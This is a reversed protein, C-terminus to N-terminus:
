NGGVGAILYLIALRVPGFLPELFRGLIYLGYSNLALHILGIHVFCATVLRWWQGRIIEARSVAGEDHIIENYIDQMARADAGGFLYLNLPFKRQQALFMGALFVAFYAFLLFRTVVATPPSLFAERIREGRDWATEGRFERPKPLAAPPRARGDRVSALAKEDNLAHMGEPTLVYGQGRGQVWDTLRILNALRLKELPADLSDRPVGSSEAHLKPYWPEPAASAVQRLISELPDASLEAM